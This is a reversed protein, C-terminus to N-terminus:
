SCTTSGVPFTAPHDSHGPKQKVLWAWDFWLDLSVSLLIGVEEKSRSERCRDEDLEKRMDLVRDKTYAKLSNRRDM